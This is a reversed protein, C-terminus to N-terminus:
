LKKVIATFKIDQCMTVINYRDYWGPITFHMSPLLMQELKELYQPPINYLHPDDEWFVFGIESITGNKELKYCLRIFNKNLALVSLEEPSFVALFADYVPQMSIAEIMVKKEFIAEAVPYKAITEAFVNTYKSNCIQLLPSLAHDVKFTINNGRVTERKYFNYSVSDPYVISYSQGYTPFSFCYGICLAVFTIIRKM